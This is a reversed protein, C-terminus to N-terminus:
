IIKKLIREVKECLDKKTGNNTVKYDALEICKAVNQKSPDKNSMEIKEQELFKDFLIHDTSSGRKLIREYRLKPNADVAILYFEGKEKLKEAEGVTRISEIICKNGTKKAREYLQEVIYSSSHKARLENALAVMNERSLDKKRKNLEEILYGRVSFDSFGKGVLYEVITGKGAGLTGTIGIIM